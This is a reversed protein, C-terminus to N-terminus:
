LGLLNEAVIKKRMEEAVREIGERTWHVDDVHLSWDGHPLLADLDVYDIAERAFFRRLEDNMASVKGDPAVWHATAALFKAGSDKSVARQLKLNREFLHMGALADASRKLKGVRMVQAGIDSGGGARDLAFSARTLLYSRFAWAPLLAQWSRYRDDYDGYINRYDPAAGEFGLLGADNVGDYSIVLDPQFEVGVFQLNILSTPSAAMVVGLNIVEVKLGREAYTENLMAELRAPWTESDTFGDVTTSGGLTVIRKVGAPKEFPREPTRFGLSNLAYDYEYTRNTEPRFVRLVRRDGPRQAFPLFPHSVFRAQESATANYVATPQYANIDRGSLEFFLRLAVEALLLAFLTAAIVVSTKLLLRRM